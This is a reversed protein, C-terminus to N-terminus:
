LAWLGLVLTILGALALAGVWILDLNIWARRLVEVGVEQYVVVAILGMVLFMALTHLAVAALGSGISSGAAMAHGAHGATALAPVASAPRLHALVPVLMLGAGHATAMLFSWLALEHPKVRMGVWRPHRFRTAVKYAAFALLLAGGLLLLLERSVALQLLGIAIAVLGTSAAHGIAIPLLAEVVARLRGEQLGLAVAFLWGMAPNLGHFAGLLILSLWPWATGLDAM